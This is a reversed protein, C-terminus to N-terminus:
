VNDKLYNGCVPRNADTCSTLLRKVLAIPGFDSVTATGQFAYLKQPAHCVPLLSTRQATMSRPLCRPRGTAISLATNSGCSVNAHASSSSACFLFRILFDANSYM